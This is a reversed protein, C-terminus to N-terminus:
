QDAPPPPPIPVDLRGRFQTQWRMTGQPTSTVDLLWRLDLYWIDLFNAPKYDGAALASNFATENDFVLATNQARYVVGRDAVNTHNTSLRGPVLRNGRTRAATARVQGRANTEPLETLVDRMWDYRDVSAGTLAAHSGSPTRLARYTRNSYYVDIDAFDFYRIEIGAQARHVTGNNRLILTGVPQFKRAGNARRPREVGSDSYTDTDNNYTWEGSTGNASSGVFRFTDQASGQPIAAIEAAFDNGYREGFLTQPSADRPGDPGRGSLSIQQSWSETWSGKEIGTNGRSTELNDIVARGQQVSRGRGKVRLRKRSVVTVGGKEADPGFEEVLIFGEAIGRPSVAVLPVPEITNAGSPFSLWSNDTPFGPSSYPSDDEPNPEVPIQQGNATHFGSFFGTVEETGGVWVWYPDTQASVSAHAAIFTAVALGLARFKTFM